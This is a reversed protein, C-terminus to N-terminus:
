KQGARGIFRHSNIHLTTGAILMISGLTSLRWDPGEYRGGVNKDKSGPVFAVASVVTGAIVLITGYKFQQHSRQLNFQIREQKQEVALLRRKLSDYDQASCKTSLGATVAIIGVILGLKFQVGYTSKLPKKM